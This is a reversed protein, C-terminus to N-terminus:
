PTPTRSPTVKIKPTPTGTASKPTNTPTIITKLHQLAEERMETTMSKEDMAVLEKWAKLADKPEDRKEQVLARWYLMLATEEDTDAVSKLVEVKQFASGFKEQLFYGRALALNIEFSTKDEDLATELQGVAQDTNGLELNSYGSYLYYRKLGTRNLEFAKDFNDVAAQYDKQEYYAQGLMALALSNEKEYIVFLELANVAEQYQGSELYLSGWFSISPCCRSIWRTPKKRLSSRVSKIM